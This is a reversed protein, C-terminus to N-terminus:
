STNLTWFAHVADLILMILPVSIAATGFSVCLGTVFIRFGIEILLPDGCSMHIVIAVQKISEDAYREHSRIMLVDSSLLDTGHRHRM